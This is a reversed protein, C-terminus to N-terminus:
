SRRSIKAMTLQLFLALNTVNTSSIALLSFVQAVREQYNSKVEKYRVHLLFNPLVGYMKSM